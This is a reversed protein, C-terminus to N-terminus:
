GTAANQRNGGVNKWYAVPDDENLMGAGYVFEQYDTLSMDAEQAIAHSPFATGRGAYNM